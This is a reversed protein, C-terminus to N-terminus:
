LPCEPHVLSEDAQPFQTINALASYSDNGCTFMCEDV